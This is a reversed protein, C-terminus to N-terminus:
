IYHIDLDEISHDNNVDTVDSIHNIDSQGIIKLIM